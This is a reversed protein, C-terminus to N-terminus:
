FLSRSRDGDAGPGRPDAQVQIPRQEPSQGVLLTGGQRNADSIRAAGGAKM